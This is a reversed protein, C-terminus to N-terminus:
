AGPVTVTPDSSAVGNNLLMFLGLSAAAGGLIGAAASVIGSVAKLQGALMPDM